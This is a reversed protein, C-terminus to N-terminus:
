PVGHIDVPVKDQQFVLRLPLDAVPGDERARHYVARKEEGSFVIVILRSDFIAAPTLSMRAQRGGGAPVALCRGAQAAQGNQWGLDDPFLSAFHGDPGFGLYAVDLPFAVKDLREACAAVGEEPTAHATKLGTFTARVAKGRLLTRRALGENSDGHDPEVWREDILTVDVKPWDLCAESLLPLVHLPTQGGSVALSARDRRALGERLAGAMRDAAARACEEMTAYLNETIM